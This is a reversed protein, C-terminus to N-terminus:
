LKSIIYVWKLQQDNLIIGDSVREGIKFLSRWLITNLPLSSLIQDRGIQLAKSCPTGYTFVWGLYLRPTSVELVGMHLFQHISIL